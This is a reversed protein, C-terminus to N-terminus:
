LSIKLLHRRKHMHDFLIVNSYLMVLRQHKIEDQQAKSVHMLVQLVKTM